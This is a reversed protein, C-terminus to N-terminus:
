TRQMNRIGYQVAMQGASKAIENGSSNSNCEHLLPAEFAQCYILSVETSGALIEFRVKGIELPSFSVNRGLKWWGWFRPSTLRQWMVDFKGLRSSM